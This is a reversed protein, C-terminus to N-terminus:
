ASGALEQYLARHREVLREMGYRTRVKDAGAQGLAIRADADHALHLLCAALTGVDGAPYRLGTVGQEIIEPNGGVDSCVVALGAQLYEILTNSFGESESCLLGIDFNPLLAPVDHLPGTFRVKGAIGLQASLERLETNDGDGIICLVSDPFDRCLRAHAHIADEIRKVPRINAVLVLKLMGDMPILGADSVPRGDPEYGNYIVEVVEPAYGESAITQKRVACSNAVVRDVFHANIRLPLLNIRNQWYGMDRRSIIVRYGLLKLLPPCIISADNFFIHALRYGARRKGLFFRFVHFWSLPSLLRRIGLVNVPVPFHNEALYASGRFVVLEAEFQQRNLNSVLKLLQGETGAWPNRYCDIVYLLKLPVPM